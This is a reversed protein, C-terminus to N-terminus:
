GIRERRGLIGQPRVLLVLILVILAGVYKLDSPIWLTSVEVIMGVVLAGILAGYATGLGGLTIAAFILLLIGSGMDWKIGPRFYAWLIGSLGALAAALIWVIRIVRDVDIGSAAALSANDSIARTAKGVRTRQLWYAVAILVVVSIAMSIMDTVTLSVSGFLTIEAAGAGPLQYTGGGIFYQFIYRLALSLGISVIMLQVIGIGRKRLPKFLGLDLVFGFAGSLVVAVPIAIWIPVSLYTGLVMAAIAGFTVFEAHAFNSLGTTGFVLSAGIAALALMLGFNLGNFVRDALQDWFSVTVRVGEGLFFNVSKNDTLGFEVETTSSGETVIVGDPLTSEDLTIEYAEKEPVGIRWKGETDTEVEAEYGNGSVSILVDELPVGDNQVNGSFIYDYEDTGVEDATASSLPILSLAFAACLAAFVLVMFRSRRKRARLAIQVSGGLRVLRLGAVEHNQSM